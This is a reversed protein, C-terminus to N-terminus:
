EDEYREQPFSYRVFDGRGDIVTSDTSQNPKFNLFDVDGPLYLELGGECERGGGESVKLRHLQSVEGNFTVVEDWGREGMVRTVSFSYSAALTPMASDACKDPQGDGTIDVATYAPDIAATFTWTGVGWCGGVDAPRAPAAAAFTGTLTYGSSCAYYNPNDPDFAPKDSGVGCSAASFALGSALCSWTLLRIAGVHTMPVDYRLQLAVHFENITRSDSGQTLPPWPGM